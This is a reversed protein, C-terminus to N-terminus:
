VGDFFNKAIGCLFIFREFLSETSFSCLCCCCLLSLRLSSPLSGYPQRTVNKSTLFKLGLFVYRRVRPAHPWDLVTGFVGEEKKDLCLRLEKKKLCQPTGKRKRQAFVSMKQNRFFSRNRNAPGDERPSQMNTQKNTRNATQNSAHKNVYKCYTNTIGRKERGREREAIQTEQAGAGQQNQKSVFIFLQM